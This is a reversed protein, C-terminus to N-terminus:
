SFWSIGRQIAQKGFRRRMRDMAVQLQQEKQTDRFLDIQAYGRALKSFRVGVLRVLQRRTYLEEFLQLSCVLLESENATHAIRRQRTYTNFDAYRLKLTVCATLQEKSRLEFALTGVMRAIIGRMKDLNITDIQFTEECSISKRDVYPVVPREDIGNAKEWLEQGQKGFARRLLQPPIAGLTAVSQVGMLQLKRATSPGVGPLKQVSLPALFQKEGGPLILREGNPKAENTSVKAVLKNIALGMSISLGSERRVKQRLGRSWQWCGIHTDMGSLDAYFEDVSAKEFLPVEEAIIETILRSYRDYVEPDGRLVIAEPCRQLAVKMSMGSRIGFRRAEYSCSSVVGRQRTGGILLPKERLQRNRLCEVSAFFADLDLHLIARKFGKHNNKEIMYIVKINEHPRLQRKSWVTSAKYPYLTFCITKFYLGIQHRLLYLYYM